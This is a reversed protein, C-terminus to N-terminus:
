VISMSHGLRSVTAQLGQRAVTGESSGAPILEATLYM